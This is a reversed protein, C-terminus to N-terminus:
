INNDGFSSSTNKNTTQKIKNQKILSSGEHQKVESALAAFLRGAQSNEDGQSYNNVSPHYGQKEKKKEKTERGLEKSIKGSFM